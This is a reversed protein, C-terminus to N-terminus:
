DILSFIATNAGIGLGLSLVAVATFGPSRRLMRLSYRVDRVLTELSRFSWMERSVEKLFSEHGFRRRAARRAEEPAMGDAMNETTKMDVHFRMEAELDRELRDRKGFSFLRRWFSSMACRRWRSCARPATPPFSPRRSRSRW